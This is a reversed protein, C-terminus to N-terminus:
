TFLWPSLLHPWLELGWRSHVILRECYTSSCNLCSDRPSCFYPFFPSVRLRAQPIIQLASFMKLFQPHALLPNLDYIPFLCPHCRELHSFLSSDLSGTTALPNGQKNRRCPKVERRSALCIRWGHKNIPWISCSWCKRLWDMRSFAVQFTFPYQIQKKFTSSIQKFPPQGFSDKTTYGSCINMEMRSPCCEM